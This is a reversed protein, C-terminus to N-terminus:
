NKALLIKDLKLSVIMLLFVVAAIIITLVLMLIKILLSGAVFYIAQYYNIIVIALSMILCSALIKLCFQQVSITLSFQYYKRIYQYLLWVNCWAALSSGLSIGIIGMPKILLFNLIINVTLAYITIKLLAKLNLNAYFITTLIKILIFAPLGLAFGWIAQATNVTDQAIFAGRQYIVEIIPKSLLMMGFAAPMSLLMGAKIAKNLVQEAKIFNNLQYIRSLEPLLLTSFTVGIMSLPFQYIRDAYSLVSIAGPLFSAISQSVFLNLQQASAGLIAPGINILFKRVERDRAKFSLQFTLGARTLCYFMFIVQLAGAILLSYSVAMAQSLQNKAAASTGIIVTLSLIIPLFAFAGFKKVSNLMGGFLASISIFVLYPLSIRCLLVTLNLKEPDSSFGPAIIWILCPMLLQMGIVLASLVLLLRTFIAGTFDSAAAPSTLMKQNFIPIFANSFAGEAFIRRFLNPLKFAVNVSDAISSSGFLFAVLLERLLGFIRSILTFLAIILGSFVM